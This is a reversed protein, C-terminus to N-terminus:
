SLELVSLTVELEEDNDSIGRLQDGAELILKGGIPEYVSNSPIIIGDGLVTQADSDSADTWYFDLETPGSGVNAVQCGVVIATTGAPVTYVGTSVDGLIARANKFTQAM